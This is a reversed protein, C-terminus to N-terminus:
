RFFLMEALLILSDRAIDKTVAHPDLVPLHDAKTISGRADQRLCSPVRAPLRARHESCPNQALM